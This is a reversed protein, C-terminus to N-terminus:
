EPKHSAPKRNTSALGKIIKDFFYIIGDGIKDLGKELFNAQPKPQSINNLRVAVDPQFLSVKPPEGGSYSLIRNTEINQLEHQYGALKQYVSEIYEHALVASNIIQSFFIGDRHYDTLDIFKETAEAAKICSTLAIEFDHEVSALVKNQPKALKKLTQLVMQLTINSEVLRRPSVPILGRNLFDPAAIYTIIPAAKEYLTTIRRFYEIEEIEKTNATM